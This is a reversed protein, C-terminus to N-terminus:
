SAHYRFDFLEKVEYFGLMATWIERLRKDINAGDFKFSHQIETLLCLLLAAARAFHMAFHRLRYNDLAPTRMAHSLKDRAIFPFLQVLGDYSAHSISSYERWQDLRSLTLRCCALFLSLCCSLLDADCLTLNRLRESWNHVRRVGIKEATRQLKRESYPGERVLDAQKRPGNALKARLYEEAEDPRSAKWEPLERSLLDFETLSSKGTWELGNEDIKYGISDGFPGVNTKIHVM